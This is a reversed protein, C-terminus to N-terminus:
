SNEPLAGESTPHVVALDGEDTVLDRYHYGSNFRLQGMGYKTSAM